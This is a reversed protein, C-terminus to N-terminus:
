YSELPTSSQPAKRARVRLAREELLRAAKIMGRKTELLALQVLAEEHDPEIYLTKRYYEQAQAENGAGEEILALLYYARASPGGAELAALSAARAKEFQGKDALQQAQLLLDPKSAAVTAKKPVLPAPKPPFVVAVPSAFKRHFQPQLPAPKLPKEKKAKSAKRFAFAMPMPVPEFGFDRALSGEAHGLFVVGEPALLHSIQTLVRRRSEGDLYILLNRCFIVHIEGGKRKLNPEIINAQRFHVQQIVEPSLRWSGPAEKAFYKERFDLPQSRFSNRGYLALRAKELAVESIDFAEVSFREAAAGMELLTMAISYPEEGSACPASLIRMSGFSHAAFWECAWHALLEYSEHDRFFWTEPVVVEEVLAQFEKPSTSVLRLYEEDSAVGRKRCRAQVAMGLMSVGVSRINLGIGRLLLAEIQRIAESRVM